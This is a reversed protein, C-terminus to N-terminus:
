RTRWERRRQEPYRGCDDARPAPRRAPANTSTPRRRSWGFGVVHRQAQEVAPDTRPIRRTVAIREKHPLPQPSPACRRLPRRPLCAERRLTPKARNNPALRRSAFFARWRPASAASRACVELKGKERDRLAAVDPARHFLVTAHKQRQGTRLRRLPGRSARRRTAVVAYVAPSEGAVRHAEGGRSSTKSSPGWEKCLSAWWQIDARIPQFQSLFRPARHNRKPKGIGYATFVPRQNGIRCPRRRWV